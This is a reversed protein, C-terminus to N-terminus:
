AIEQATISLPPGILIFHDIVRVELGRELLRRKIWEIREGHGLNVNVLQSSFDLYKRGESDYIYAGEGREIRTVPHVANQAAWPIMDYRRNAGQM